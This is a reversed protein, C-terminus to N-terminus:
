ASAIASIRSSRRSSPKRPTGFPASRSVTVTSHFADGEDFVQAAVAAHQLAFAPAMREPEIRLRTLTFGGGAVGVNGINERFIQRRRDTGSIPLSEYDGRM